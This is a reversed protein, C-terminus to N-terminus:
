KKEESHLAAKESELKEIAMAVLTLALRDDVTEQDRRLNEIERDLSRCKDCM